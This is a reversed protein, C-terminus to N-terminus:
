LVKVLLMIVAALNSVALAVILPYFWAPTTPIPIPIPIPATLLDINAKNTPVKTNKARNGRRNSIGDPSKVWAYAKKNRINVVLSHSVGYQKAIERASITSARINLVDADTLKRLTM